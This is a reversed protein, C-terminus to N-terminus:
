FWGDTVIERMPLNFNSNIVIALRHPVLIPTSSDSVYKEIGPPNALMIM